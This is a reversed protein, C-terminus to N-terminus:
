QVNYLGNIYEDSYYAVVEGTAEDVFEHEKLGQMMARLRAADDHLSPKMGNGPGMGTILAVAIIDLMWLPNDFATAQMMVPSARGERANTIAEVETGAPFTVSSIDCPKDTDIVDTEALATRPAGNPDVTMIVIQVKKM